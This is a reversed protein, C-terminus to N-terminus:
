ISSIRDLHQAIVSAITKASYKELQNGFERPQKLRGNSFMDFYRELLGKLSRGDNSNCVASDQFSMSMSVCDGEPSGLCLIPRGSRLYEYLKGPIRGPDQGEKNLLLLLVHSAAMLKLARQRPVFGLFDVNSGLGCERVLQHVAHDVHGAFVLKLHRQWAESTRVLEGLVGFLERPTRDNGLIGVHSITFMDEPPLMSATAKFDDDDFGLTVLSVNRAGIQELGERWHPSTTIMQDAFRFVQQELDRHRKKAWSTFPLENHYSLQTWPDQFDAIWPIGMAQKLRLGIVTNTHPPGVSYIANVKNNKLFHSLFRVSPRIWLARADPIFLNARVWLALRHAQGMKKPHLFPVDQANATIPLRLLRKYWLYPERVSTRITEVSDTDRFNSSDQAQYDANRATYVIPKWGFSPLYKALKLPRLVSMGGSPPWHYSIILVTRTEAM